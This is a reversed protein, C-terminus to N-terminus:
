GIELVMDQHPMGVDLYVAGVANFGLREYLTLARTQASLKITKALAQERTFDIMFQVIGTGIGHGRERDLVAVRQIKAAGDVLLLRSAGVDRGDLVALFHWCEPDRGDVEDSKAIGMGDVYVTHRVAVCREIDAADSVQLIKLGDTM